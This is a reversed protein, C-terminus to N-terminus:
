KRKSLVQEEYKEVEPIWENGPPISLKLCYYDWVANLPMTKYDETLSLTIHTKGTKESERLKDVPELLAALLAILTARIGIVYASIRNISADFFDLALFIRDLLRNRIIEKTLELLEQNLIPVHDSDWRVSRTIHLLLNDSFQLIASLKDAVSETPHFHGMDLCIMIQKKLAYSLYFDYSGVVFTESGLGFLKSEVSDRLATKPYPKTFIEDLSKRLNERYGWKDIVLDKTGDPIWTNHLCPNGQAEGIRAAIERCRKGHEVWFSRITEDKSSLTFGSNAKPHAFYTSNFDLGTQLEKAWDIWSQFHAPEIENRDVKQNQFDGYMAHLGIRHRGPILALVKELDMRIETINRARGPYNGTAMIGGNNTNKDRYELGTVDDTQWCPLSLQIGNLIALAKDSDVGKEAYLERALQYHKEISISSV